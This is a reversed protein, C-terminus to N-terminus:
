NLSHVKRGGEEGGSPIEILFVLLVIIFLQISFKDLFQDFNPLMVEQSSSYNNPKARVLPRHPHGVNRGSLQISNKKSQVKM